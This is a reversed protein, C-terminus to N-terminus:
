AGEAQHRTDSADEGQLWAAILDAVVTAGRNSLHIQDTLLHFGRADAIEDWSQGAVYHRVASMVLLELRLAYPQPSPPPNAALRDSLTEYLPLYSVQHEAALEALIQNYQRVTQNSPSSLDEGLPPLSLLAIRAQTDRQLQALIAAINARFAAPASALNGASRVDNTGILITIADPDCAIIPVLRQRLDASTAGNRGANVFSYGAPALRADLMAVYDGSLSAHTSSSGAAVVLTTTTPTRGHQLFAEPANAPPRLFAVYVFLVGGALPISLLGAILRLIRKPRAPHTAEPPRHPRAIM